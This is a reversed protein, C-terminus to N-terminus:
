DKKQGPQLKPLVFDNQTPKVQAQPEIKFPTSKVASVPTPKSILNTLRWADNYVGYFKLMGNLSYLFLM